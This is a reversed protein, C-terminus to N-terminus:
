TQAEAGDVGVNDGVLLLDRSGGDVCAAIANDRILHGSQQAFPFQIQGHNAFAGVLQAFTEADNQQECNRADEDSDDIMRKQNQVREGVGFEIELREDGDRQEDLVQEVQPEDAVHAVLNM